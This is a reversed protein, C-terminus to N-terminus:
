SFVQESIDDANESIQKVDIIPIVLKEVEAYMKFSTEHAEIARKKAEQVKDHVIDYTKGANELNSEL